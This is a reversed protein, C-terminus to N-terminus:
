LLEHKAKCVVNHSFELIWSTVEKLLVPKLELLCEKIETNQHQYHERNEKAAAVAATTTNYTICIDSCIKPTTLWSHFVLVAIKSV